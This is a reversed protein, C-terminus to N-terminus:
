EVLRIPTGPRIYAFLEEMDEQAVMVGFGTSAPSANGVDDGGDTGGASAVTAHQRSSLIMLGKKSTSIGKPAGLYEVHNFPLNGKEGWASLSSVQGSAPARVMPPLALKTITYEKFLRGDREVRITQDSKDIVMSFQDLPYVILRDGKFITDTTRGNVRMIYNITCKHDRAIRSLADGSKVVYESKGEIPVESLLFDVNIEGVLRKAESYTASDAYHEMLYYLQERAALLEGEELFEVAKAFQRKGLDPAEIRESPPLSKVEEIERVIEREPEVFYKYFYAAAFVGVCMIVFAFFALVLKLHGM